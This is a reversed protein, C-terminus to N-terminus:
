WGQAIREPTVVGAAVDGGGRAVYNVFELDSSLLNKPIM